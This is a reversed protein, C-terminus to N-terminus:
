TGRGDNFVYERMVYLSSVLSAGFVANLVIYDIKVGIGIETLLTGTLPQSVILIIIGLLWGAAAWADTYGVSVLLFYPILTGVVLTLGVVPVEAILWFGVTILVAAGGLVSPFTHKFDYQEVFQSVALSIVYVAFIVPVSLLM